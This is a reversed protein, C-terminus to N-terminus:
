QQTSRRARTLNGTDELSAEYFRTVENSERTRRAAPLVPYIMAKLAGADRRDLHKYALPRGVSNRDRAGM